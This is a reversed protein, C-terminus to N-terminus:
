QTWQIPSERDAVSRPPTAPTRQKRVPVGQSGARDLPGEQGHLARSREGGHSTNQGSVPSHRGVSGGDRWPPRNRPRIAWYQDRCAMEVVEVSQPMVEIARQAFERPDLKAM